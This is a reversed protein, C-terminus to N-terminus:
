HDSRRQTGMDMNEGQQHDSRRQTSTDGIDNNEEKKARGELTDDDMLDISPENEELIVDDDSEYDVDVLNVYVRKREPSTTPIVFGAPKPKVVTVGEGLNDDDHMMDDSDEDEIQDRQSDGVLLGTDEPLGVSEEAPHAINARQRFNELEEIYAVVAEYDHPIIKVRKKGKKMTKPTKKVKEMVEERSSVM